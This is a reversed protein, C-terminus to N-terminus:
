PLVSISSRHFVPIIFFRFVPIISFHFLPDSFISCFGNGEKRGSKKHKNEKKKTNWYGMIRNERDKRKKEWYEL